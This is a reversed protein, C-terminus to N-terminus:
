FGTAVIIFFVIFRKENLSFKTLHDKMELLLQKAEPPTGEM